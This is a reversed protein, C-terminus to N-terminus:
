AGHGPQRLTLRDGEQSFDLRRLFSMGLLVEDGRMHPNIGARVNRLVIGGLSVRDILTSYITITGAATRARTPAGPKLGARRAVDAPVSIETAGTDVLFTVQEGNIEGTAVYHGYRNQELVVERQGGEGVVTEVRQNPNQQHELWGSFYATAIGLGVVWALVIM